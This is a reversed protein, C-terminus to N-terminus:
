KIINGHKERNFEEFKTTSDMILGAKSFKYGTTPGDYGYTNETGNFKGLFIYEGWGNKKVYQKDKVLNDCSISSIIIPKKFGGNFKLCQSDTYKIYKYMINKQQANKKPVKGNILHNVFCPFKKSKINWTRLLVEFEKLSPTNDVISNFKATSKQKLNRLLLFPRSTDFNKRSYQLNKGKIM